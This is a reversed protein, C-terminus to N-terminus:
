QQSISDIVFYDGSVLSFSISSVQSVSDTVFGDSSVQSVSNTVLSDCVQIVRGTSKVCNHNFFSCTVPSM